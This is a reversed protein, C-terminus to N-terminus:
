QLEESNSHSGHINLRHHKNLTTRLLAPVDLSSYEEMQGLGTGQGSLVKPFSYSHSFHVTVGGQCKQKTGLSAHGLMVALAVLSSECKLCKNVHTDALLTTCM